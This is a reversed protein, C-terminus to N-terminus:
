RRVRFACAFPAAGTRNVQVFSHLSFLQTCIWFSCVGFAIVKGAEARIYGAPIVEACLIFRIVVM